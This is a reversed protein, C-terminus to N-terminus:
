KAKPTDSTPNSSGLFDANSKKQFNFVSENVSMKSGRSTDGTRPKAQAQRIRKRQLKKAYTVMQLVVVLILFITIIIMGVSMLDDIAKPIEGITQLLYCVLMLLFVEVQTLLVLLDYSKRIYPCMVLLAATYGASVVMGFPLMTDPPLFRLISTLILKHMIDLLEFYWMDARYAQYLFGLSRAVHENKYLQKRQFFLLSFLVVPVGIPYVITMVITYPFYQQWLPDGCIISFDSVLYRVGDVQKCEFVSLVTSSVTPYMLFVSFCLLKSLQSRRLMRQNRGQDDDSLDHKDVFYMPLFFFLLLCVAVAFPLVTTLVLRLFFNYGNVSCGVSEWPIFDLNLFSLFQIFGKFIEPFPITAISTLGSAIQILSVIIKLPYTMNISAGAIEAPDNFVDTSESLTGAFSMHQFSSNSGSSHTSFSLEISLKPASQSPRQLKSSTGQSNGRQGFMVAFPDRNKDRHDVAMGGQAFRSIDAVANRVAYSAQSNALEFELDSKLLFWCMAVFAVVVLVILLVTYGISAGQSACEKCEGTYGDISYGAECLACLKGQRPSVCSNNGGRRGPCATFDLCQYVVAKLDINDGSSPQASTWYGPLPKLTDLSNGKGRCDWGKPCGLCSGRDAYQDEPCICRWNNDDPAAGNPCETCQASGVEAVSKETCTPCFPAGPASSKGIPCFQCEFAGAEAQHRGAQCQDCDTAKAASFSGAKCFQCSSFGEVTAYTGNPCSLCGVSEPTASYSGRECLTCNLAGLSSYQGPQCISCTSSSPLPAFRGASCDICVSQRNSDQYRGPQCQQCTHMGPEGTFTGAECDGCDAQGTNPNAKGHPCQTCAAEQKRFYGKGCVSCFSSGKETAEKGRTCDDCQILGKKDALQNLECDFCATLKVANGFKGELCADCASQGPIAAFTGQLCGRCSTFGTFGAYHGKECLLCATQNTNGNYSGVACSLCNSLGTANAFSGSACVLCGDAGHTNSYSAEPCQACEVGTLQDNWFYGAECQLYSFEVTNDMVGGNTQLVRVSVSRSTGAPLDCEIVNHPAMSSHTASFAGGSGILVQAGTKGFNAGTLRLRGGGSRPLNTVAGWTTSGAAKYEMTTVSPKAYSLGVLGASVLDADTIVVLRNEGTDEPLMCNILTSNQVVRNGCPNGGITVLSSNTFYMGIVDLVVDSSTPCATTMVGQRSPCGSLATVVPSDRLQTKFHFTQTGDVRDNYSTAFNNTPDQAYHAVVTYTMNSNGNGEGNCEIHTEDSASEALVCPFRMPDNSPGFFVKILNSGKFGTGTFKTNFQRNELPVSTDELNDSAFVDLSGATITMGPYRLEGQQSLHRLCVTKYCAEVQFFLSRGVGTQTICDLDIPGLGSIPIVGDNLPGGGQCSFLNTQGAFGYRLKITDLLTSVSLGVRLKDGGRTTSLMLPPGNNMIGTISTNFQPAARLGPTCFFIGQLNQCATDPPCSSSSACEDIDTCNVGDGSFGNACVGCTYGGITNTCNAHKSCSATGEDCENVDICLPQQTGNTQWTWNGLRCSQTRSIDSQIRYGDDCAFECVTNAAWEVGSAPALPNCGRVGNPGDSGPGPNAPCAPSLCALVTLADNYTGGTCKATYPSSCNTKASACSKIGQNACTYTDAWALSFGFEVKMGAPCTTVADRTLVIEYPTGLEVSGCLLYIYHRDFGPTDCYYTSCDASGITCAKTNAALCASSGTANTSFQISFGWVITQFPPCRATLPGTESTKLVQTRDFASSKDDKCVGWTFRRSKATAGCTTMSSSCTRVGGLSCVENYPVCAGTGSLEDFQMHLGAQLYPNYGWCVCKYTKYSDCKANPDGRRAAFMVSTSSKICAVPPFPPDSPCIVEYPGRFIDSSYKSCESEVLQDQCQDSTVGVLLDTNWDPACTLTLSSISQKGFGEIQTVKGSVFGSFVLLCLM